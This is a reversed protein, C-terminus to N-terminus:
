AGDPKGNWAKAGTGDNRPEFLVQLWEHLVGTYKPLVETDKPLVEICEPLVCWLYYLKQLISANFQTIQLILRHGFGNNRNYIIQYGVPAHM